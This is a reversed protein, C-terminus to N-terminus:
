GAQGRGITTLLMTFDGSFGKTSHYETVTSDVAYVMSSLESYDGVQLQRHFRANCALIDAKYTELVDVTLQLRWVRWNLSEVDDVFYYRQLEPIHAYNFAAINVMPDVDLLISPNTIDTDHRLEINYVTPSGLTKGIVNNASDTKYLEFNM